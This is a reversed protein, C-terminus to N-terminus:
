SVCLWVAACHKLLRFFAFFPVPAPPPHYPSSRFQPFLLPHQFHRQKPHLCFPLPINISHTQCDNLNKKHNSNQKLKKSKFKVNNWKWINKEEETQMHLISVCEEVKQSYNVKDGIKQCWWGWRWGWWGWRWWWQFLSHQYWQWWVLFLLLIGYWILSLWPMPVMGTKYSSFLYSSIVINWRRSPCAMTILMMTILHHIFMDKQLHQLKHLNM